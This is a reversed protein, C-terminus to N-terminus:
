EPARLAYAYATHEKSGNLYRLHTFGQNDIAFAVGLKEDQWSQFMFTHAPFGPYKDDDKTFVVDGPRLDSMSTFKKWKLRELLYRSFSRTVLSVSYGDIKENRPIPTGSNRLATSIYAVCMDKTMGTWDLVEKKVAEYNKPQTYFNFLKDNASAFREFSYSVRLDSSSTLKADNQGCSASSAALVAALFLRSLKTMTSEM